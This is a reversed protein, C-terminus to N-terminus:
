RHHQFQDHEPVDSKRDQELFATLNNCFLKKNEKMLESRAIRTWYELSLYKCILWIMQPPIGSYENISSFKYYKNIQDTILCVQSTITMIDM